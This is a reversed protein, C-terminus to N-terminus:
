NPYLRGGTEVDQRECETFASFLRENVTNEEKKNKMVNWIELPSNYLQASPTPTPGVNLLATGICKVSVSQNETQTM